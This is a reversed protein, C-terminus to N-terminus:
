TKISSAKHVLVTYHQFLNPGRLEMSPFNYRYLIRLCGTCSLTGLKTAVSQTFVVDPYSPCTDVFSQGYLIMGRVRGWGLRKKRKHNEKM